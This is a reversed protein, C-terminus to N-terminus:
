VTAEYGDTLLVMPVEENLKKILRACKDMSYTSYHNIFMRKPPNKRVPETYLDPEFHVGEVIALDFPEGCNMREFDATPGNEPSLDGSFLVRKGEAELIFSYANKMHGNMIATVRLVGDDYILGEKYEEFRLTPRLPIHLATEMYLSLGDRITIEPVLILPDIKTYCWSCQNTFQVLGNLHDGHPHTIFIATIDAPKKGRNILDPMIDCGMDVIYLKGGVEVFCSSCKRNPECVGHSTGIFTLKM